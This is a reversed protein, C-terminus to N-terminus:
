SNYYDFDDEDIKPKAQKAPAILDRFPPLERVPNLNNERCFRIHSGLLCFVFAILCNFVM